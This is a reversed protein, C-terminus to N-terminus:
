RGCSLTVHPKLRTERGDSTAGFAVTSKVKAIVAGAVTWACLKRQRMIRPASPQNPSLVSSRAIVTSASSDGDNPADVIGACVHTFFVATAEDGRGAAVPPLPSNTWAKAPVRGAPTVNSAVVRMSDPVGAFFCSAVSYVYM